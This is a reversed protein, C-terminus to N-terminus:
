DHRCDPPLRQSQCPWVHRAVDGSVDALRHHRAENERELEEGQQHQRAEHARDVERPRVVLASMPRSAYRVSAATTNQMPRNPTMVRRLVIPMRSPMSSISFATLM